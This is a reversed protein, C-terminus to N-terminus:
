PLDEEYDFKIEKLVDNQPHETKQYTYLSWEGDVYELATCSETWDGCNMYVVEKKSDAACMRWIGPNHVHGCVVAGIANKAAFDIYLQEFDNKEKIKQKTKDKIKKSLNSEPRGLFKEWENIFRNFQVFKDFAKGAKIALKRKSGSVSKDFKDGHLIWTKVGNLNLILEEKLFFNHFRFDTFKRLYDDHNGVLYYIPVENVMLNFFYGLIKTHKKPWTKIDLLWIDVIDGNLILMKPEVSKLYKYLRGARCANTGLHLDSIVLIDIQRALLNFNCM